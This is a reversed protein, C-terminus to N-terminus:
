IEELNAIRLDEREGLAAARHPTIVLAPETLAPDPLPYVYGVDGYKARLEEIEGFDLARMPCSAVCAPALGDDIRDACFDCKSMTGKDEQYQPASYPCAWECYRCGICKDQDILVIGDDRKTIAQAPCVEKCIPEACHNCAISLHYTSLNNVWISGQRVWDGGQVEVVRRWLTGVELDNKDKCAIQCAKCGTCASQDYHFALQTAM